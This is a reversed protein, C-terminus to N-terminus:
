HCNHFPSTRMPNCMWLFHLTGQFVHFFITIRTIIVLYIFLQFRTRTIRILTFAFRAGRIRFLFAHFLFIFYFIVNMLVIRFSIWRGRHWFFSIQRVIVSGNRLQQMGVSWASWFMFHPLMMLFGTTLLCSSSFFFASTAITSIIIILTLKHITTRSRM